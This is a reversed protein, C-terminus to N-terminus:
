FNERPSVTGKLFTPFFVKSFFGGILFKLFRGHRLVGWSLITKINTPESLTKDRKVVWVCEM